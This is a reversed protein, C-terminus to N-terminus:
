INDYAKGLSNIAKKIGVPAHAADGGKEKQYQHTQRRRQARETKGHKEIESSKKFIM